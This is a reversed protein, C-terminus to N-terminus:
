VLTKELDYFLQGNKHVTILNNDGEFIIPEHDKKATDILRAFDLYAHSYCEVLFRWEDKEKLTKSKWWNGLQSEDRLAFKDKAAFINELLKKPALYNNLPLLKNYMNDWATKNKPKDDRTGRQIVQIWPDKHLLFIHFKAASAIKIVFYNRTNLKELDGQTEVFEEKVIINGNHYFVFADQVVHGGIDILDFSQAKKGMGTQVADLYNHMYNYHKLVVKADKHEEKVLDSFATIPNRDQDATTNTIPDIACFTIKNYGCALLADVLMYGQLLAGAGLSVHVIEEDKNRYRGAIKDAQMLSIMIREPVEFSGCACMSLDKYAWRFNEKKIKSAFKEIFHIVTEAELNPFLSRITAEPLQQISEQTLIFVKKWQKSEASNEKLAFSVIKDTEKTAFIKDTTISSDITRAKKGLRSLNTLSKGLITSLMKLKQNFMTLADVLLSSKQSLTENSSPANAYSNKAVFFLAIVFFVSYYRSKM